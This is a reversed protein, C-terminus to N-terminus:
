EIGSGDPITCTRQKFAATCGTACCRPAATAPSAACRRGRKLLLVTPVQAVAFREALEPQTRVDCRLATVQGLLQEALARFGPAFLKCSGNDPDFWEVLVPRQEQMVLELREKTLYEM